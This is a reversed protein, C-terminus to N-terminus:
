SNYPKVSSSIFHHRFRTMEQMSRRSAERPNERLMGARARRPDERLEGAAVMAASSGWLPCTEMEGKVFVFTQELVCMTGVGM